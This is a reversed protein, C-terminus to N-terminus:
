YTQIGGMKTKHKQGKKRLQLIIGNEGKEKKRKETKGGCLFAKSM